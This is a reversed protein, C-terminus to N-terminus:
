GIAAVQIIAAVVVAITAVAGIAGAVAGAVVVGVTRSSGVAIVVVARVSGVMM